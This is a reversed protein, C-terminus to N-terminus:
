KKGQIRELAQTVTQRIKADHEPIGPASAHALLQTEEHRAAAFNIVATADGGVPRAPLARATVPGGCGQLLATLAGM